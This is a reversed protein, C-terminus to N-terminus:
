FTKFVYYNEVIKDLYTLGLVLFTFKYLMILYLKLFTINM